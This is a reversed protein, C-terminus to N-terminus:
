PGPPVQAPDCDGSLAGDDLFPHDTPAPWGANAQTAGGPCRTFFGFDFDALQQTAPIPELVDTVPDHSFPNAGAPLVRAYHGSADYNSTVRAFGSLFAFLDPTYPRGFEIVPQSDDLAAITRPVARAARQEAAPLTELLDGLDNASGPRDVTRGLDRFVPVAREAVLRLDRLFPALKRTAPKSTAVLPDLDDFAARLNVFTTNAQRMAPPLEVLSRDLAANESAIAGLAVNASETLASLDDRREAVAGLVSSGEVLFDTLVRQDRTLERLLDTTAQLSPALFRYARNAQKGNGTYVDGQGRIVNALGRRAKPDLTDLLQDIDVPSTTADTPITAGDPLPPASNPGPAISIYRNAVGSLSTARTVATTGEHLPRDVTIKMEAQADDTLEIEEVTGIPQGAVRVQNGSVLQGGTEFLLRYTHGGDSGLLVFAALVAISVLAAVGAVRAATTGKHADLEKNRSTM